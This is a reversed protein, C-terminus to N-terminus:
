GRVNYSEFMREMDLVQMGWGCFKVLVKVRHGGDDESFVDKVSNTLVQCLIVSPTYYLHQYSIHKITGTLYDM